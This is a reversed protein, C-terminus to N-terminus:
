KGGSLNYRFYSIFRDDAPEKVVDEDLPKQVV